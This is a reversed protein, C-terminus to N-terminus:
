EPRPKACTASLDKRCEETSPDEARVVLMPTDESTTRACQRNPPSRLERGVAHTSKWAGM